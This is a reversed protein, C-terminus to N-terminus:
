YCRDAQYSRDCMEHAYHGYNNHNTARCELRMHERSRCDDERFRGCSILLLIGLLLFAKM